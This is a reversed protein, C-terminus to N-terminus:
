TTENEQRMLRHFKMWAIPYYLWFKLMRKRESWKLPHCIYCRGRVEPYDAYSKSERLFGRWM